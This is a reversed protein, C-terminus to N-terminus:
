FFVFMATLWYSLGNLSVERLPRACISWELGPKQIQSVEECCVQSVIDNMCCKLRLTSDGTCSNKISSKSFDLINKFKKWRGFSLSLKIM